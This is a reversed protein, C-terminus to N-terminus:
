PPRWSAGLQLEEARKTILDALSPMEYAESVRDQILLLERKTAAIELDRTNKWTFRGARNRFRAVVQSKGWLPFQQQILERGAKEGHSSTHRIYGSGEEWRELTHWLQDKAQSSMNHWIALAQLILPFIRTIVWM